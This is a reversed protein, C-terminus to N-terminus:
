KQLFGSAIKTNNHHNRFFTMISQKTLNEPIEFFKRILYEYEIDVPNMFDDFWDEKSDNQSDLLSYKGEWYEGEDNCYLERTSLLPRVLEKLSVNKMMEPFEDYHSFDILGTNYALWFFANRFDEPGTGLFCDKVKQYAEVNEIMKAVDTDLNYDSLVLCITLIDSSRILIAM